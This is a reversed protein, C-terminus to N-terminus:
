RKVMVGEPYVCVGVCKEATDTHLVRACHICGLALTERESTGVVGVNM